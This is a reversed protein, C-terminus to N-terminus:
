DFLGGIVKGVSKAGDALKGAGEGIKKITAQLGPVNTVRPSSVPVPSPRRPGTHVAVGAVTRSQSLPRGSLNVV